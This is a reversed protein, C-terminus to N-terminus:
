VIDVVGRRGHELRTKTFGDEKFIERTKYVAVVWFGNYIAGPMFALMDDKDKAELSFRSMSTEIDPLMNDPAVIQTIVVFPESFGEIEPRVFSSLVIRLPIPLPLPHTGNPKENQLWSLMDGVPPSARHEVLASESDFSAIM